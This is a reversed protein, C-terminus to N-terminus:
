RKYRVSAATSGSSSKSPKSPKNSLMMRGSNTAHVLESKTIRKNMSACAAYAHAYAHM